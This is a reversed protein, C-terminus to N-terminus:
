KKAWLVKYRANRCTEGHSRFYQALVTEYPLGRNAVMLLEGGNKLAEGAKRIFSQGLGPEAVHGEHFPPNMVILDYKGSVAESAMDHWRYNARVDPCNLALNRKAYDLAQFDAEFLDISKLKRARMALEVSLYGWGAGFDAATGDFDEPLRGALLESGADIRDHSFMGPAAQFRGDVTAVTKRFAAVLAEVSEPRVFWFVQAHYKPMHESDVGAKLLRKRLSQVGDEKSGAVAIIGGAHVRELAEALNGENEGRHKGCLILASSYGEGEPLPTVNAAQQELPLYLPRFGQACVLEAEFSEPLSFGAEAGLFLVREGAHPAELVATEYPYLLTKLANRSM